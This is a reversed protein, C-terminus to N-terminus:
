WEYSAPCQVSSCLPLSSSPLSPPIFHSHGLQLPLTHPQAASANVLAKDQLCKPCRRSSQSCATCISHYAFRVLKLHCATCKRPQALPRYKRYRKRWEIIAHCRICLGSNPIRAIAATLRSRPNHKFATSNQHAPGRAAGSHGAGVRSSM